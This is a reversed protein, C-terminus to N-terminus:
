KNVTLKITEKGSRVVYIGSRYSQTNIDANSKEVLKGTLDFVQLATKNMNFITKGDFSIGNATSNKFGTGPNATGSLLLNDIKITKSNPGFVTFLIKVAVGTLNNYSAVASLDSVFNVTLPDAAFGYPILSGVNTFVGGNIDPHQMQVQFNGGLTIAGSSNIDMSLATLTYGFTSVGSFNIEFLGDVSSSVRKFSGYLGGSLSQTQTSTPNTQVSSLTIGTTGLTSNLSTFDWGVITAASTKTFGSLALLIIAVAFLCSKTKTFTSKM